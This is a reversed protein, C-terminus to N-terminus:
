YTMTWNVEWALTKGPETMLYSGKNFSDSLNSCTGPIPEFACECRRLGEEDPYGSNNWWIGITSFLEAPFDIMLDMGNRFSIKIINGDIKKLLFMKFEGSKVSLLNDALERSSKFVPADSSNEDVIAKFEPFQMDGIEDLPMLGHMVHLFPLSETTLNVVEFQWSISNEMFELTRRFTVPPRCCKTYCFLRNDNFRVQWKAWCLEGHDRCEYIDKPYTCPDVTPFCDDYGYVPRTEYEGYFKEPPRFSGPNRTFLDKGKFQLVSIRAGDEPLCEIYWNGINAKIIKM